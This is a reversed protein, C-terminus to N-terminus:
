DEDFSTAQFDGVEAQTARLGAALQDPDDATYFATVGEVNLSHGSGTCFGIVHVEVPTELVIEEAKPAPVYDRSEGDTVVILRHTGYGAQRQLQTLMEGKAFDLAGWLPTEEDAKLSTISQKAAQLHVAGHGYDVVMRATRGDFVAVALNDDPSLSDIFGVLATQAVKFKTQKKPVCRDDNMSGSNDLVIFYSTALPDGIPRITEVAAVEASGVVDVASASSAAGSSASQSSSDEECAAFLLIFPALLYRYKM